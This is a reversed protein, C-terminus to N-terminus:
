LVGILGVVFILRNVCVGFVVFGYFCGVLLFLKKEFGFFLLWSFCCDCDFLLLWGYVWICYIDILEWGWGILIVLIEWFDSLYKGGWLFFFVWVMDDKDVGWVEILVGLVLIELGFILFGFFGEEWCGESNDVWEGIVDEWLFRGVWDFEVVVVLLLLGWGVYICWGFFIFESLLFICVGLGCFFGRM